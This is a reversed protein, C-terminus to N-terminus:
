GACVASLRSACPQRICITPRVTCISTIFRTCKDYDGCSKGLHLLALNAIVENVNMNTSTGAGGQLADLPFHKAMEERRRPHRDCAAAIAEAVTQDLYGLEANTMAAARKVTSLAAILAYPVRRGSFAFNILARQTHNGCAIGASLWAESHTTDIRTTSDNSM